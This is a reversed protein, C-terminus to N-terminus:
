ETAAEVKPRKVFSCLRWNIKDFSEANRFMLLGAAGQGGLGVAELLTAHNLLAYVADVEAQSELTLIVPVFASETKREAKM